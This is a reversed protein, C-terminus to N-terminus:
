FIVNCKSFHTPFRVETMLTYPDSKQGGNTKSGVGLDSIVLRGVRMYVCWDCVKWLIYTQSFGFLQVGRRLVAPM